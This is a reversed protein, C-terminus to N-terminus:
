WLQSSPLTQVTSPQSLEPFQLDEGLGPLQLSPFAQVWFSTHLPRVQPPVAPAHSSLLTQVLSRHSLAVPPHM